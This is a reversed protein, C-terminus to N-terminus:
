NMDKKELSSNLHAVFKKITPHATATFREFEKGDKNLLIITPVGQVDHAELVKNNKETLAKDKRPIDIVVLVYNKEAEKTFESKSFVKKNMKICPPCWDSGTFEVMVAKNEKKAQALGSDIDTHWDGAQTASAFLTIAFLSTLLKKIVNM